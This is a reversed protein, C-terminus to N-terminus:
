NRIYQMAVYQAFTYSSDLPLFTTGLANVDPAAPGDARRVSVSHLMDQVQHSNMAHGVPLDAEAAGDPRHRRTVAVGKRPEIGIKETHDVRDEQAPHWPAIDVIQD